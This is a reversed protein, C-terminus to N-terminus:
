WQIPEANGGVCRPCTRKYTWRCLACGDFGYCGNCWIEGWGACLGCYSAVAPLPPLDPPRERAM